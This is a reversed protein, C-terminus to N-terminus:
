RTEHGKERNFADVLNKGGDEMSFDESSALYVSWVEFSICDNKFLDDFCLAEVRGGM